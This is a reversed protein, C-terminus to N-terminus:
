PIEKVGDFPNLVKDIKFRGDEKVVLLQIQVSYSVKKGYEEETATYSVCYTNERTNDKIVSITELDETAFDCILDDHDLVHSGYIEPAEKLDKNYRKTCYKQRLSDLQELYVGFDDVRNWPRNYAIYFEKLMQLISEEENTEVISTADTHIVSITDSQEIQSKWNGTCSSELVMTSVVLLLLYKNM